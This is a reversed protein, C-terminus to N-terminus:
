DDGGDGGDAVGDDAKGDGGDRAVMGLVLTSLRIGFDALCCTDALSVVTNPSTTLNLESSAQFLSNRNTQM